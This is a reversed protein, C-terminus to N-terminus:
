ATVLTTCKPPKSGITNPQSVVDDQMCTLDLQDANNVIPVVWGASTSTCPHLHLVLVNQWKFTFHGRDHSIDEKKKGRIHKSLEFDRLILSQQIHFSFLRSVLNSGCKLGEGGGWLLCVWASMCGLHCENKVRHFRPLGWENHCPMEKSKKKKKGRLHKLAYRARWFSRQPASLSVYLGYSPCTVSLRHLRTRKDGGRLRLASLFAKCEYALKFFCCFFGETYIGHM